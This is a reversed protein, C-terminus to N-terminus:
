AHQLAAECRMQQPAHRCTRYGVPAPNDARRAFDTALATM